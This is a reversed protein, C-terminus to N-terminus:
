PMLYYNDEAMIIEVDYIICKEPLHIWLALKDLIFVCSKIKVSKFQLTVTVWKHLKSLAMKVGVELQVCAPRVPHNRIETFM